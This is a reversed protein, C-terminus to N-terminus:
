WSEYLQRSSSVWQFLDRISPFISPQLLLPHCLTFRNSPMVSEISMLKLLSQSITFSLSIQRAATWPTAFLQICSSLMCSPICGTINVLVWVVQAEWTAWHYLIRRGTCSSCSVQTWDRPWSSGRSYSIAVWEQIRAQFIGQISPGPLSCARPTVFLWIHSLVCTSM